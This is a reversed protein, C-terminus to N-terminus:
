RNDTQRDTENLKCYLRCVNTWRVEVAFRTGRTNDTFLSLFFDQNPGMGLCLISVIHYPSSTNLGDRVIVFQAPLYYLETSGNTVEGHQDCVMGRLERNVMEVGLCTLSLPNGSHDWLQSPGDPEDTGEDSPSLLPSQILMAKLAKKYLFKLTKLLKSYGSIFWGSHENIDSEVNAVQLEHAPCAGDVSDVCDISDVGDVSNVTDM